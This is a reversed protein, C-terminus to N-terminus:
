KYYPIKGKIHLFIEFLKGQLYTPGIYESYNSVTLFMYIGSLTILVSIVKNVTKIKRLEMKEKFIAIAIILILWWIMSGFFVGIILVIKDISSVNIYSFGSSTFVAFFTLITAPNILALIFTSLFVKFLNGIDIDKEKVAKAEKALFMHIGLFILIIGGFFHFYTQNKFVFSSIISSGLVALIALMSDAMASGLGSTLGHLSGKSLTAKLCLAGIPGLPMGTILGIVIGKAINSWM